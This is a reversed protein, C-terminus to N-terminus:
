DERKDPDIHITIETDPHKERMRSEIKECIRHAEEVTLDKPVTVHVDVFCRKGARRSRLRHYSVVNNSDEEEIVNSIISEIDNLKEDEIKADILYNVSDVLVKFVHIIVYTALVLALIPDIISIGTIKTVVIGIIVGCTTLVDGLIHYGHSTFIPSNNNKGHKILKISLLLNVIITVLLVISGHTVDELTSRNIFRDIAEKVVMGMACIVLSVEIISALYEIKGHGYPHSKDPPKESIRVAVVGMIASVINVASEVADSLVSVSNTLIYSYLKLGGNVLGILISIYFLRVM